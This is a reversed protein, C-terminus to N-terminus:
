PNQNQPTTLFSQPESVTTYDCMYHFPQLFHSPTQSM